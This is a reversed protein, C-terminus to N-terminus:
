YVTHTYTYLHPDLDIALEPQVYSVYRQLYEQANAAICMDRHSYMGLFPQVDVYYKYM